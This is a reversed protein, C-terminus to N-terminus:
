FPVSMGAPRAPASAAREDRTGTWAIGMAALIAALMSVVLGVRNFGVIRM